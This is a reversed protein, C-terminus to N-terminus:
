SFVLDSCSVPFKKPISALVFVWLFYQSHTAHISISIHSTFTLIESAMKKHSRFSIERNITTFSHIFSLIISLSLTWQNLVPHLGLSPKFAFCAFYDAFVFESSLRLRDSLSEECIYQGLLPYLFKAFVLYFGTKYIKWWLPLTIKKKYIYLFYQYGYVFIYLTM